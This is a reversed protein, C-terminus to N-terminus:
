QFIAFTCLQISEILLIVILTAIHVLMMADLVLLTKDGISVPDWTWKCLYACYLQTHKYGPVVHYKMCCQMFHLLIYIVTDSWLNSGMDLGLQHAIPHIKHPNPLFNVGNYRSLVTHTKTEHGLEKNLTTM